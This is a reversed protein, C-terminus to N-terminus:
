SSTASGESTPSFCAYSDGVCIEAWVFKAIWTYFLVTSVQSCAFQSSTPWVNKVPMAWFLIWLLLINVPKQAGSRWGTRHTFRWAHMLPRLAFKTIMSLHQDSSLQHRRSSFWNSTTYCVELPSLRYVMTTISWATPSRSPTATMACFHGILGWIFACHGRSNLMPQNSLWSSHKSRSTAPQLSSRGAWENHFLAWLCTAAWMLLIAVIQNTVYEWDSQDSM